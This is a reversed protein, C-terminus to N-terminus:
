NVIDYEINRVNDIEYTGNDNKEVVKDIKLNVKDNKRILVSAEKIKFVKNQYTFTVVSYDRSNRLGKDKSKYQVNDITVKQNLRLSYQDQLNQSVFIVRISLIIIALISFVGLVTALDKDLSHSNSRFLITVFIISLILFVVILITYVLYNEIFLNFGHLKELTM